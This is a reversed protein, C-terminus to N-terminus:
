RNPPAEPDLYHPLLGKSVEQCLQSGAVHYGTDRVVFHHHYYATYGQCVVPESTDPGSIAVMQTITVNEGTGGEGAQFGACSFGDYTIMANTGNVLATCSQGWGTLSGVAKIGGGIASLILLAAM